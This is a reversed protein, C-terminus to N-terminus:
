QWFQIEILEWPWEGPRRPLRYSPDDAAEPISDYLKAQETEDQDAYPQIGEFSSYIGTMAVHQDSCSGGDDVGNVGLSYLLYGEKNKDVLRRYRFPKESFAGIPLEALIKPALEDLSEPYKDHQAQHIALAVALRCFKRDNANRFHATILSNSNAYQSLYYKGLAVGRSYASNLYYIDKVQEFSVHQKMLNNKFADSAACQQTYTPLTYIAALKDYCDNQIRLFQNWDVSLREATFIAIKESETVEDVHFPQTFLDNRDDGLTANLIMYREGIDFCRFLNCQFKAVELEQQMYKLVSLSVDPDSVVGKVQHCGISSIAIAVFKDSLFSGKSAIKNALRVIALADRAAKDYQKTGLYYMSRTQLKRTADRTIGFWTSYGIFQRNEKAPGFPMYWDKGEAAEVLRDLEAENEKIWKALFPLEKETWPREVPECGYFLDKVRDDNMVEEIPGNFFYDIDEQQEKTFPLGASPKPKKLHKRLVMLASRRNAPTDIPTLSDELLPEEIGLEKLFWFKYEATMDVSMESWFTRVFPIAGNNEPMVGQKRDAVIVGYYDPYGDAALPTTIHTTEKSVVIKPNPGFFWFALFGFLAFISVVILVLTSRRKRKLIEEPTTTVTLESM